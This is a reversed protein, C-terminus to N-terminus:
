KTPKKTQNNNTPTKRYIYWLAAPNHIKIRIFKNISCCIQASERSVKYFLYKKFYMNLDCRHLVFFDYKRKSVPIACM